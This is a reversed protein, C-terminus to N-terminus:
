GQCGPNEASLEASSGGRGRGMGGGGPAQVRPEFGARKVDSDRLSGMDFFRNFGM